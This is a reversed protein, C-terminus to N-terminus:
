YIAKSYTKKDFKHMFYLQMNQIKFVFPHIEYAARFLSAHKLLRYIVIQGRLIMRPIKIIRGTHFPM